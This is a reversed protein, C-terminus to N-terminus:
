KQRRHLSFPNPIFPIMELGRAFLASIAKEGHFFHQCCGWSLVESLRIGLGWQQGPSTHAKRMPAAVGQCHGSLWTKSGQEAKYGATLLESLVSLSTRDGVVSVCRIEQWTTQERQFLLFIIKALFTLTKVRRGQTHCRPQLGAQCSVGERLKTFQPSPSLSPTFDMGDSETITTRRRRGCRTLASSQYRLWALSM